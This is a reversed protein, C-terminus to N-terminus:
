VLPKVVDMPDQLEARSPLIKVQVILCTPLLTEAPLMSQLVQRM